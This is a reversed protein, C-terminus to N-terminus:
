KTLCHSPPVLPLADLPLLVLEPADAPGSLATPGPQPLQFCHGLAPVLDRGEPLQWELMPCLLWVSNYLTPQPHCEASLSGSPTSPAMDALIALDGQPFSTPLLWFAVQCESWLLVELSSIVEPRAEFPNNQPAFSIVHLLEGYPSCLIYVSPIILMLVRFRRASSLDEIFVPQVSGFASSM